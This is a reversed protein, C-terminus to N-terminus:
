GLKLSLVFIEGLTEALVRSAEICGRDSFGLDPFTKPIGSFEPLYRLKVSQLRNFAIHIHKRLTERDLPTGYQRYHAWDGEIM